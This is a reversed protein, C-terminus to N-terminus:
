FGLSRRDIAVAKPIAGKNLVITEVYLAVSDPADDNRNVYDFSYKTLNTMFRGYDSNPILKSKDKFFVKRLILGRAALIRQEKKVTAFHPVVECNDYGLEKLRKEIVYPLSTDVNNEVVLKVVKNDIIKYCIEDYLESMSEKRFLVDCMFSNGEADERFIPMSVNDKGKRAPDLVAYAHNSVSPLEHYTKLYEWSFELGTPAIADQQYVCAWLYPDTVQRRFLADETSMVNDCTSKENSDLQPVRIVATSGDATEQCYKLKAPVLDGSKLIREERIQNLIDEPSWMTGAIVYLVSDDVKRNIWESNWRKYLKEHLSANVAEEEGKTIDDIIIAVSARVGTISGDRTRAYHSTLTDAGKLRWENEKSKDFPKNNLIRFNPFVEAFLDSELLDRVSRSAALVLDESYSIRLISSDFNIGYIWASFYNMVFTKGYSPPFSAIVYKLKSDFVAKNLYFVFPKLVDKRNFYVKRHTTRDWEMFDIFHELSRRAVFAYVKRYLAYVSQLMSESSVVEKSQLLREVRPLLKIAAYRCSELQMDSVGLEFLGVYLEYLDCYLAYLTEIDKIKNKVSKNELLGLIDSILKRIEKEKVLSQEKKNM